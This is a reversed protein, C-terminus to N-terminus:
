DPERLASNLGRVIPNTFYTILRREGVRFDAKALMGPTLDARNRMRQVSKAELDVRARYVPKKEGNLDESFTDESLYVLTGKIDGFQQFPLADLKVSVPVGVKLDKIDKPDVDVELVLPVDRPVLKIVVEGERVITGVSSAPIDLVIADVPARVASKKELKNLSKMEEFLQVEIEREKELQEVIGAVKQSLKSESESLVKTVALLNDKAQLFGIKSGAGKKFLEEHAKMVEEKLAVQKKNVDILNKISDYENLRKALIEKNGGDLQRIKSNSLDVGKLAKEELVLRKIRQRASRLKTSMVKQDSGVESPDLTVLIDDKRVRDGRKVTIETVVSSRAAQVEVNPVSTVFKGRSSVTIDVHSLISFLLAFFIIGLLLFSSFVKAKSIPAEYIADPDMLVSTFDKTNKEKNGEDAVEVVSRNAENERMADTLKKNTERLNFSMRKLLNLAVQPKGQIYALFDSSDIEKVSVSTTAKAGASRLGGEIIAMEGFLTGKQLTVLVSLGKPTLKVIEVSGEELLYAYGGTEGEKFIYDGPQFNKTTPM